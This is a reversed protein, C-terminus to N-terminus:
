KLYPKPNVPNGKKRVEFHLHPGTSWGTSGVKAIAQGKKVQQGANVLTKSAHAYLTVLNGGHNIMVILGYGGRKGVEMVTGSEAAVITTGKTARIDMGTHLKNRKLIPHFRMGYESTIKTYGPTPWALKGSGLYEGSDGGTQRRIEDAIQRSQAELENFDAEAKARESKLSNYVTQQRSSAVSLEKKKQNQENKLEALSQQKQLALQQKIKVLNLKEENAKILEKNNDALNNLLDWRTLFDTISTSDLLVELFHVDGQEYIIRLHKKLAQTNASIQKNYEKLEKELNLVEKELSSLKNETSKLNNSTKSITNNLARLELLASKEEQKKQNLINQSEEIKHMLVTQQEQLNLDTANANASAFISTSLLLGTALVTIKLLKNFKKM